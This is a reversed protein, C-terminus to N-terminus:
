AIGNGNEANTKRVVMAPLPEYGNNTKRKLTAM